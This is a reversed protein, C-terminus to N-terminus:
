DCLFLDYRCILVIVIVIVLCTKLHSFVFTSFERLNIKHNESTYAKFFSIPSMCPILIDVLALWGLSHLCNVIVNSFQIGIYMICASIFDFVFIHASIKNNESFFIAPSLSSSIKIMSSPLLNSVKPTYSIKKKIRNIFNFFTMVISRSNQCLKHQLM